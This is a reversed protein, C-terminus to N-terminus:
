GVACLAENRWPNSESFSTSYNKSFCMSSHIITTLWWIITWLLFSLFSSTLSLYSFLIRFIDSHFHFMIGLILSWWHYFMFNFVYSFSMLICTFPSSLCCYYIWLFKVVTKEKLLKVPQRKIIIKSWIKWSIPFSILDLSFHNQVLNHFVLRWRKPFKRWILQRSNGWSIGWPNVLLRWERERKWTRIIWWTFMQIWSYFVMWLHFHVHNLSLHWFSSSRESNFM